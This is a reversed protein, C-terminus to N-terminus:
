AVLRRCAASAPCATAFERCSAVAPPVAARPWPAFGFRDYFDAATTTLLYIAALGRRRAAVVRNATLAVGLGLGRERPALAVSRLVGADGYSELGAAGVLAGDRTAVVYGAPFQEDVGETTLDTAALLATVAARDADGAPAVTVGPPIDAAVLEVLHALIADRAARYRPLDDGDGDAPDPIPWVQREVVELGATAADAGDVAILRTAEGTAVEAIGKSRYGALDVGVEAMAAITPPPIPGPQRGASAVAHRPGFLRRALAEAMLSRAANAAGLFVTRRARPLPM